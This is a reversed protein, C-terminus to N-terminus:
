QSENDDHLAAAKSTALERMEKILANCETTLLAKIAQLDTEAALMPSLRAPLQEILSRVSAGFDTMAFQVDEIEVLEGAMKRLKLEALDAEHSERKARSDQYNYSATAAKTVAEHAQSKEPEPRLQKTSAIWEKNALEPDIKGDILTIGGTKIKQSVNQRSCGRQRAYEAPTILNTM